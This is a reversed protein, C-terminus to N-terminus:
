RASEGVAEDDVYDGDNQSITQVLKLGAESTSPSHLFKSDLIAGSEIKISGYQVDGKIKATGEIFLEEAEISGDVTGSLRAIATQIKGKIHSEPGQVLSACSVDGEICGDVHLDAKASVNGTLTVDNAILTFPSAKNTMEIEGLRKVSKSFM